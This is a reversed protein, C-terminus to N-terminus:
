ADAGDLGFLPLAVLWKAAWFAGYGCLAAAATAAAMAVVPRLPESRAALLLVPAAGLMMAFAAPNSSFALFAYACGLGFALLLAAEASLRPLAVIMATAAAFLAALSVAHTPTLTAFPLGSLVLVLAFGAAAALPGALPIAAVFFAGAAAV